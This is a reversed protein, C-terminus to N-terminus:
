LVQEVLRDDRESHEVLEVIRRASDAPDRLRNPDADPIAQFHMPTRMDGPDVSLFRVGRERLEEHLIKTLHNLAAKSVGYAGWGPYASVAADSSINIVLGDGRLLMDPLAANTLRFPGMLNTELALAFDESTTDVLLRLPTEGLYSANNVLVDIGGLATLAEAVIRRTDGENSVDARIGTVNPLEAVLRDIPSRNRAVIAIRAGRGALERALAAGLGSTGGTIVARKGYWSFPKRM